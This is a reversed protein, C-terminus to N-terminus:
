KTEQQCEEEGGKYPAPLPMWATVGRYEIDGYESDSDYFCVKSSCDFYAKGYYLQRVFYDDGDKYTVIVCHAEPLRETVPIWRPIDAAPFTAAESIAVDIGDDYYEYVTDKDGTRLERLNNIYREADIYKAM